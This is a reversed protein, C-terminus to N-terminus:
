LKFRAVLTDFSSALRSLEQSAANSSKAGEATNNSLDQINILNRDVERAVQAQEESASAIILNRDNIGAVSEAIRELSEGTAKALAQTSAALSQSSGMAAVAQDASSHVASIMSEIETTSAQTRAALARVEDAVVAFGRGQEGARAAEIAANLALLNTQDAISRIVELVKGIDRVQNALTAVLGTSKNIEANVNNIATVADRAQDRGTASEASAASSAESTSIANRAVEEVATTMETVATAAQQIEANQQNLSHSSDQTIASLETAASALQTSAAAIQALTSKLSGQMTNLANLLQGTEDTKTSIIHQTLDGSAIRQACTVALAIPPSIMRTIMLGLAIAAAFAIAIGSYLVLNASDAIGKAQQNSEDIQRNNSDVIINLEGLISQFLKEVDDSLLLRSGGLDDQKLKDLFSAIQQQYVPWDKELQDGAAREDPDLDTTRYEKFAKESRAQNDKLSKIINDIDAAPRDEAAASLARYLDRNQAIARSKAESSKTVSYVNNAFVESMNESIRSIGRSGLAGVILTIVACLVFATLLKTAIKAQNFWNM